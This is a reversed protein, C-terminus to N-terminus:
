TAMALRLKEATRTASGEDPRICALRGRVYVAYCVGVPGVTVTPEPRLPEVRDVAESTVAPNRVDSM